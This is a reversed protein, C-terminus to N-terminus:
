RPRRPPTTSLAQYRDALHEMDRVTEPTLTGARLNREAATAPLAAAAPLTGLLKLMARRHMADEKWAQFMRPQLIGGAPGLQDLIAAAGGLCDVLTRDSLAPAEDPEITKGAPTRGIGLYEATARVAPV